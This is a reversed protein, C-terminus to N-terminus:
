VLKGWTLSGVIGDAALGNAKQFALVAAYTKSGFIGDVSGCTYGKANLLEQLKRVADGRSGTRLMPQTTGPTVNVPTADYLKAWTLKGVIGDVGLSNAKQFATVAAYTKAGFIGDVNGSHFGKANLKEQLAKVADGTCGWYVMPMDPAVPAYYSGGGSSTSKSWLKISGNISEYNTSDTPTFVWKYLKNAEVTTTGPLAAGTDDVWQVTGPVSFTSGTTTLAADSLKKGSTTIKTYAPEGTPTAKMIKFTYTKDATTGDAWATTAKDKLAVTVTHDGANTQSNGTVTYDATDSIGYTKANGDYTFVTTDAAPIAVKKATITLTATAIGFNISDEYTATVTYTGIGQPYGALLTGTGATYVYNWKAGTGLNTGSITAEKYEMWSGTYEKEGDPFTISASVDTKDLVNVTILHMHLANHNADGAYNAHFTQTGATDMVISPAYWTWGAPLEVDSLKQGKVGKLGTPDAPNIKNINVTATTTDKNLTYNEGLGGKVMKVLVNVTKNTGATDDDMTAFVLYHEGQKVLSDVPLTVTCDVDVNDKEYDRNTTLVSTIDIPKPQIKFNRSFTGTYNGKGEVYVTAAEFVHVNTGYSVTYDTGEVLPKTGDMVVATPKQPTGTYTYTGTIPQLMNSISKPEIKFNAHGTYIHTATECVVNVVYKGANTPPTASSYASSTPTSYHITTKITGEPSTFVPDALATGYTTDAQTVTLTTDVTKNVLTIDLTKSATSGVTSCNAILQITGPAATNDVKLIANGTSTTTDLEVGTYTKDLKWFVMGGTEAGYQDYVKATYAESNTFTAAPILLSTEPDEEAQNFIEVLTAKTPEKNITVKSKNSVIGSCTATVYVTIAPAENTVTLKGTDDISVGHVPNGATDTVRWTVTQGTMEQLYQDLVEATFQQDASNTGGPETVEPVPMNHYLKSVLVYTVKSTERTITYTVPDSTVTGATTTLKGVIEVVGAQAFRKVTLKGTASDLKVGTPTDGDIAYTISFTGTMLKGYQDYVTATPLDIENPTDSKPVAVITSTPPTLVIASGVPTDKTITVTEADTYGEASTAKIMFTGAEADNTVKLTSGDLSVGTPIPDTTIKWNVAVPGGTGDDYVGTVALSRENTATANPAATPVAVTLAPNTIIDIGKLTASGTKAFAAKFTLTKGDASVSKESITADTVTPNVDSAFQYGTNATLTVNATYATNAAFKGGTDAPIWTISGTFNTGSITTEPTGGKVPAIITVPLEGTIPTTAPGKPMYTAICTTEDVNVAYTSTDYSVGKYGVGGSSGDKKWQVEMKGVNTLTAPGGVPYIGYSYAGDGGATKVDIKITGNTDITVNKDTRLGNCYDGFRATNYPTKCIIDVSADGSITINERAFIGYAKEYGRTGNHTMDIKVQANGTITVNGTTQPGYGTEIGIAANSDNLTNTISLTGGSSSTVTIDGGWASTLSGNTITNTGKLVVTIKSRTGGVTISGGNYGDLTLTGTTPNYYANYGTPDNSCGSANNKFYYNSPDGFYKSGDVCVESAAPYTGAALATTPLLSLLMVLSLLISLIKSKTRQM